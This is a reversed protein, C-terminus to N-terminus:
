DPKPAWATDLNAGLRRESDPGQVFEFFLRTKREVVVPSRFKKSNSTRGIENQLHSNKAKKFLRDIWSSAESSNNVSEEYKFHLANANERNEFHIAVNIFLALARRKPIYTLHTM